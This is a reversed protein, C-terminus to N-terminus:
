ASLCEGGLSTTSGLSWGVTHDVAMDDFEPEVDSNGPSSAYAGSDHAPCRLLESEDIGGAFEVDCNATRASCKPRPRRNPYHVDDAVYIDARPVASIGPPKAKGAGPVCLCDWRGADRFNVGHAVHRHSATSQVRVYPCDKRVAPSNASRANLTASDTQSFRPAIEGNIQITRERQRWLRHIRRHSPKDTVTRIM